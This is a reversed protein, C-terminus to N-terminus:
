ITLGPSLVVESSLPMLPLNFSMTSIMSFLTSTIMSLLLGPIKGAAVVCWSHVQLSDPVLTSSLHAAASSYSWGRLYHAFAARDNTADAVGILTLNFVRNWINKFLKGTLDLYPIEAIVDDDENVVPNSVSNFAMTISIFFQHRQPLSALLINFYSQLFLRFVYIYKSSKQDLWNPHSEDLLHWKEPSFFSHLCQKMGCTKGVMPLIYLRKLIHFEHSYTRVSNRRWFLNLCPQVSSLPRLHTFYAENVVLMPSLEDLKRKECYWGQM